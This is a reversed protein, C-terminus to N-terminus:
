PPILAFPFMSVPVTGNNKVEDKINFLYKDDVAITRHFQLGQGNDYTLAM